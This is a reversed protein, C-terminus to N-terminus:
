LPFNNKLYELQFLCMKKAHEQYQKITKNGLTWYFMEDIDRPFTGAEIAELQKTLEKKLQERHEPNRMDVFKM